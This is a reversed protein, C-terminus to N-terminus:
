NGSTTRWGSQQLLDMGLSVSGRIDRRMSIVSVYLTFNFIATRNSFNKKEQTFHLVVSISNHKLTQCPQTQPLPAIRSHLWQVSLAQFVTNSQLSLLNERKFSHTLAFLPRQSNSRHASRSEGRSEGGASLIGVKKPNKSCWWKGAGM